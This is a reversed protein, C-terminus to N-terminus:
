STTWGVATFDRWAASSPASSCRWRWPWSALDRGLEDTGMVHEASPPQLMADLNTKEPDYSSIRPAFIASLAFLLVITSGIMAPKHRRFSRWVLQTMTQEGRYGVGRDAASMAELLTKRVEPSAEAGTERQPRVAESDSM